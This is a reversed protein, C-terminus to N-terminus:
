PNNKVGPSFLEGNIIRWLGGTTSYNRKITERSSFDDQFPLGVGAEQEGRFMWHLVPINMLLIVGAVIMWGRRTLGEPKKWPEVASPASEAGPDDVASLREKRKAQAM